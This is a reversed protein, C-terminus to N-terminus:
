VPAGGMYIALKGRDSAAPTSAAPPKNLLAKIEPPLDFRDQPLDPNVEVTDIQIIFEQQAARNVLRHPSLLTGDKRYDDYVIEANVDGMQSTVTALTKIMLGSKKDYFETIPKGEKPTLVVKYCDHGEVAESGATEAKVYLKQWYLPANFAGERLADAREAGQKLRPGQLASNEWAVDGNSGTAIKGIGPLETVGLYKDPAAQYITLSGKIGQKAFDITAHQIQSHRAEWATQGGTAAIFHNMVTEVSPLKEDAGFLPLSAALLALALKNRRKRQNM